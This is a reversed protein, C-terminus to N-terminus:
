LSCWCKQLLTLKSQYIIIWNKNYLLLVRRFVYKGGEDRKWVM